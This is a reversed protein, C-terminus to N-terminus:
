MNCNHKKKEQAACYIWEDVGGSTTNESFFEEFQQRPPFHSTSCRFSNRTVASFSTTAHFCPFCCRSIKSVLNSFLRKPNEVALDIAFTGKLTVLGFQQLSHYQM